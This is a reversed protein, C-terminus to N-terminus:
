NVKYYNGILAKPTRYIGVQSRPHNKYNGNNDCYRMDILDGEMFRVIVIMGDESNRYVDGVKFTYSLTKEKM